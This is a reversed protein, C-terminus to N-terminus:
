SPQPLWDPWHVSLPVDDARIADPKAAALHDVRLLALGHAGSSAILPGLKTGDATVLTGIAPLATAASVPLIRKRLGLKLKMRATLEQGVYCGKRFDVGHLQEFNAELAYCTEGSIEASDAVGLALRRAAYDSPAARTFGLRDFETAIDDAAPYVLRAGLAALRPDVLVYCPAAFADSGVAGETGGLKLRAVADTGWLAAVAFAPAPMGIEVASRLKFTTMRKVFDDVLATAIDVLVRDGDDILFVDYLLKGQGTLFGAYLARDPALRRIDNTSLGQLYKIRDAGGITVVSRDPLLAAQLSETM